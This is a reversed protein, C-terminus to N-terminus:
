AMSPIALPKGTELLTKLGSLVPSWGPGVAKYTANESDFDDHTLTLKCVKGMKEIVWTVRSARDEQTDDSFRDNFTTVLRLPKRAEVVKGEIMPKGDPSSWSVPAGVKFTSKVSSEYFYLETFRPDTIAKWLKEPTTRIYVEYVHKLKANAMPDDKM